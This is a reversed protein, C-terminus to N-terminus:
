KKIFNQEKLMKVIEVDIDYNITKLYKYKSEIYKDFLSM